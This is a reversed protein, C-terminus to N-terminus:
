SFLAVSGLVTWTSSTRILTFNQININSASGTPTTGNAWKITQASGDIQVASAIYPTAGQSLVLSLTIAKDNTTPVNTFNATFNGSISSHYFIAGTSFDHTVTGTAGTKTNLKEITQQSYTAGALHLENFRHTANGLTYVADTAPIINSQLTGTLYTGVRANTFYLSSGESVNSTTLLGSSVISCALQANSVAGTSGGVSTVGGSVTATLLGNSAISIGSGGTLSSIARTNTFYLNNGETLDTTSHNSLSTVTGNVNGYFTTAQVNALRFTGHTTDIYPSADPEPQYNEFFKWVGDSADRFLGAHHYTGDNYNGAFGLDPNSVSSNANLYIMNDEVALSTTSITVTNGTVTLNGSVLIDHFEVSSTKDVNQSIAIVGTGSDYIVGVGASLAARADTNTYQSSNTILGNAAIQIGSGSTLSSIARTNTFYLNAGEVINDTNLVGSSIVACALQANSVSTTQGFVSTVTGGGGGGGQTLATVLGNADISINAGATLAGIARVNTFYLNTVESTNATTLVGSSIVACALQANSVTETQGFVSTLTGSTATSSILGNAAIVVGSGATFAAVARNNTFFLNSAELIYDTTFQSTEVYLSLQNNTALDMVDVNSYVREDTYFLNTLEIINSSYLQNWTNATISDVTIVNTTVFESV